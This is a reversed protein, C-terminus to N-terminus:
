IDPNTHPVNNANTATCFLFHVRNEPSGPEGKNTGQGKNRKNGMQCQKALKNTTMGLKNLETNTNTTINVSLLTTNTGEQKNTSNLSTTRSSCECLVFWLSPSTKQKKTTKKTRFNRQEYIKHLEVSLFM